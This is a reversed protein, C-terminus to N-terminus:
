DINRISQKEKIKTKHLRYLDRELLERAFENASLNDKGEAEKIEFLKDTDDESLYFEFKVM